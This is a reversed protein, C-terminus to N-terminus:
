CCAGRTRRSHSFRRRRRLRGIRGEGCRDDPPCGDRDAHHVAIGTPTNGVCGDGRGTRVTHPAAEEREATGSPGRDPRRVVLRASEDERDSVRTDGDTQVAGITLPQHVADVRGPCLGMRSDMQPRRESHHPTSVEPSQELERGDDGVADGIDRVEVSMEKRERHVRALREPLEVHVGVLLRRRRRDHAIEDNRVAPAAADEDEVPRGSLETPAPARGAADLGRGDHPAPDVVEAVPCSVDVREVEGPM